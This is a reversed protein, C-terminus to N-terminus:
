RRKDSHDCTSAIGINDITDGPGTLESHERSAKPGTFDNSARWLIQLLAQQIKMSQADSQPSLPREFQCSPRGEQFRVDSRWRCENRPTRSCCCEQDARSKVFIHIAKQKHSSRLKGIYMWFKQHATFSIKVRRTISRQIQQVMEKRITITTEGKELFEDFEKLYKNAGDVNAKAKLYDARVKTFDPGHPKHAEDYKAKEEKLLVALSQPQKTSQPHKEQCDPSHKRAKQLTEEATQRTKGAAEYLRAVQHTLAAENKKKELEREAIRQEAFLRDSEVKFSDTETLQESLEQIESICERKDRQLDEIV